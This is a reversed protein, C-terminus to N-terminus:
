WKLLLIAMLGLVLVLALLLLMVSVILLLLLMVLVLLMLMYGGRGQWVQIGKGPWRHLLSPALFLPHSDSQFSGVVCGYDSQMFGVIGRCRRTRM